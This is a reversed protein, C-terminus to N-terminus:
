GRSRVAENDSCDNLAMRAGPPYEQSYKRQQGGLAHNRWAVWRPTDGCGYGVFLDVQQSIVPGCQLCGFRVYCVRHTHDTAYM